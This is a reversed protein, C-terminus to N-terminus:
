IATYRDDIYKSIFESCQIADIHELNDYDNNKAYAFSLDFLSEYNIIGNVSKVYFAPFGETM